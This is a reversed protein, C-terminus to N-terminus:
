ARGRRRTCWSLLSTAVRKWHLLTSQVLRGAEAPNSVSTALIRRNKKANARMQAWQDRMFRSFTWVEVVIEPEGLTRYAALRKHGDAVVFRGALRIVSIPPFRDGRRMRARYEAIREPSHSVTLVDVVDDLSLARTPLQALTPDFCHLPRAERRSDHEHRQVQGM